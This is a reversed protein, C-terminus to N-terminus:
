LVHGPAEPQSEFVFPVSDWAFGCGQTISFDPSASTTNKLKKLVHLRFEAQLFTDAVSSPDVAVFHEEECIHCFGGTEDDAVDSFFHQGSNHFCSKMPCPCDLLQPLILFRCAQM